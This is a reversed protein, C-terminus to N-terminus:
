ASLELHDIVCFENGDPTACSLLDAGVPYPWEDVRATGLMILREVHRAQESTYLDLHVRVLEKPRCGTSQLSVRLRQGAGKKGKAQGPM